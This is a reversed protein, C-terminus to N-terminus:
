AGRLQRYLKRVVAKEERKQHRAQEDLVVQLGVQDAVYALRM